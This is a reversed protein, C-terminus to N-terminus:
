EYALVERITLRSARLAPLYSAIASLAIVLVLWIFVGKISFTTHLPIQLFQMGVATSLFRSLPLALLLGAAWSLLGILVGEVLVIQLVTEDSAGIARMVGIERIRELVNLSMTGMLGLGGVAALLVAMSFLFSTIINFLVASQERQQTATFTTIVGLRADDFHSQLQQALDTDVPGSFTLQTSSAQGVAGTTRAFYDYNTYVLPQALLGQVVGVVVWESEENGRKLTITDGVRLDPQEQLVDSSIVVANRDDPLLWRGELVKAQFMETDAPLATLGLTEGESGDPRLYIVSDQIWSEINVVGPFQRAINEIRAVRYPRKFLVQVDYQFYQFIDELTLFLSARVNFIGMFVTSAIILTVLTLSLRTKRRVTNRLSLLFPRPLLMLNQLNVLLRDVLSTGFQGKGLGYDSIAARITIRTGRVIPFLGALMPVLLAMAVEFALVQPPTSFDNLQFNLFYALFGAFQEAGWASLPVAIFLALLGFVLVMVLYMGTLQGGQAGIAKMVGIQQTQQALQASITNVVLFGSLFLSLLGLVGLILSIAQFYNDLPLKGPTHVQVSTVERGSKEIKNEVAAAVHQLHHVDTKNGAVIIHLENYTGPEGFWEMTDFTVYGVAMLSFTAPIRAFDYALGTVPLAKEKGAPTKIILTDGLKSRTLGLQAMLLSTREITLTRKVPPWDGPPWNTLDPDFVQVPRVINIRIDEYDALAYLILPHWAGDPETKFQVIIQRRGEAEAVDPMRRITELLAEDFPEDTYLTVNAPNVAAYSEDLDDSVIVQMHAVTGVAFVGVAISLVVLLTRTKNGWLDRFVKRWRMGWVILVTM